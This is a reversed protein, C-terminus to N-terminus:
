PALAATIEDIVLQAADLRTRGPPPNMIPSGVVLYDAGNQIAVTPTVSRQHGGVMAGVPRIGPTVLTLSPYYRRLFVAEGGSCVVGACGAELACNARDTVVHVVERGLSGSEVLMTRNMSTLVTIGLIGFMGQAADVCVQLHDIGSGGEVTLFDIPLDRISEIAGVRTDPVDFVKLDLMLGVDPAVHKVAEVLEHGGTKSLFLQLGIKFLGVHNRLERAAVLAAARDPVDLAVILRQRPSLSM